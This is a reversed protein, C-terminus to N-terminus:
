LQGVTYSATVDNLYRSALELTRWGWPEGDGPGGDGSNAMGLTRWGWTRWGWLEGDEPGAMGLGLYCACTLTVNIYGYEVTSIVNIITRQILTKKSM